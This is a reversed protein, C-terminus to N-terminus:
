ENNIIINNQDDKLLGSGRKNKSATVEKIKKQMNYNDYKQQLEKIEKCKEVLWNEKAQRIKTRIINHIKRYETDNKKLIKTKGGNTTTNRKNDDM